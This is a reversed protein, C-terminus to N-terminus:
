ISLLPKSGRSGKEVTVGGRPCRCVLKALFLRHSQDAVRRTRLISMIKKKKKLLNLLEQCCVNTSRLSMPIYLCGNIYYTSYKMWRFGFELEIAGATRRFVWFHFKMERM